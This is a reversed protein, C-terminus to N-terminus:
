HVAAQCCRWARPAERPLRAVEGACGARAPGCLLSRWRPSPQVPWPCPLLAPMTPSICCPLRPRCSNCCPWRPRCSSGGAWIRCAAAAASLLLAHRGLRTLCLLQRQCCAQMALREGAGGLVGGVVAGVPFSASSPESGGEGPGPAPAPAPPPSPPAAAARNSVGCTHKGGASLSYFPITSGGVAAVPLPTTSGYDDYQGVRGQTGTGLQGDVGQGWCFAAAQSDVGCM